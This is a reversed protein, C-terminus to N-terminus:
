KVFLYTTFNCIQNNRDYSSNSQSIIEYGEKRLNFIIASLRTAGYLEIATWSDIRGKQILHNKVFNHKTNQKVISKKRPISNVLEKTELRPLNTKQKGVLRKFIKSLLGM